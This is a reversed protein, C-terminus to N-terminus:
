SEQRKFSIAWVWPNDSWARGPKKGNISDWLKAFARRPDSEWETWPWKATPIGESASGIGYKYLSGDKTLCHLGEAKADEESIDQLREVRVETIELTLRSAWRPMHISPRWRSPIRETETARYVPRHTRTIMEKSGCGCWAGNWIPCFDQWTERVWLRDGPEGYSCWNLFFQTEFSRTCSIGQPMVASCWDDYNYYKELILEPVARRTQTKRGELIARVMEGSFLIPRESM